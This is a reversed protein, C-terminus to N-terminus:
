SKFVYCKTEYGAPVQPVLKHDVPIQQNLSKLHLYTNIVVWNGGLVDISSSNYCVSGRDLDGNSDIFVQYMAVITGTAVDVIQDPAFDIQAEKIEPRGLSFLVYPGPNAQGAKKEEQDLLEIIGEDSIKITAKYGVSTLQKGGQSATAKDMAAQDVPPIEPLATDNFGLPVTTLVTVVVFLPLLSWLGIRALTRLIRGGLVKM